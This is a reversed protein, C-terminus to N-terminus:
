CFTKDSLHQMHKQIKRRMDCYRQKLKEMERNEEEKLKDIFSQLVPMELKIYQAVDYTIEEVQDPEMLFIKCIQECPGHLVRIALPHDDRKLQMREGSTHLLFLTFEDPSNEIKFKNLLVRLVQATTMSSNIRVNTVSGFAPTFVATTHNYFHGNFSCRHRRLRRQNSPETQGGLSRGTVCSRTRQLTSEEGEGGQGAEESCDEDSENEPGTVQITPPAQPTHQKKSEAKNASTRSSRLSALFRPSNIAEKGDQMQLRIPRRLGWFINLLGEIILEGEEERHRLHLSKEEYYLNYTKLYSLLNTKSIFKKEGIQVSNEVAM